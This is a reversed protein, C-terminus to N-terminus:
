RYNSNQQLLKQIDIFGTLNGAYKKFLVSFVLSTFMEKYGLVL